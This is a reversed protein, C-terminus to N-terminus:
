KPFLFLCKSHTGGIEQPNRSLGQCSISQSPCSMRLTTATPSPLVGLQVGAEGWTAMNGAQLDM